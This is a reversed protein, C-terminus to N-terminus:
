KGTAKPKQNLGDGVTPNLRWSTASWSRWHGIHVFRKKAWFQLEAQAV